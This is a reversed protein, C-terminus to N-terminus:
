NRCRTGKCQILVELEQKLPAVRDREHKLELEPNVLNNLQFPDQSINYLEYDRAAMLDQNNERRDRGLFRNKRERRKAWEFNPYREWESFLMAEGNSDIYRLANFSPVDMLYAPMLRYHLLHLDTLYGNALGPGWYEILFKDRWKKIPESVEKSGRILPLLSKGDMAEPVKKTVLDLITPALDINLVWHELVQGKKLNLNKGGSIFMPVRIGEEYPAIKQNLGHAGFNYGNDSAFIFLTDDWQNNDKLTKVIDRIMEDCAILSGMRNHWDVQHAGINRKPADKPMRAGMWQLFKGGSNFLDARKKFTKQLFLPKNELYSNLEQGELNLAINPNKAPFTRYGWQEDTAEFHRRAPPLPFHPCTPNVYAFFPRNPEKKADNIFELTKDRVVDTSYDKEEDGRWELKPASENKFNMLHYNYGRYKKLNRSALIAGDTWGVPLPPMAWEGKVKKVGHGNLYKGILATRYGQQKLLNPFAFPEDDKFQEWGGKPGGNGLVNTNHGYKGSLIAARSPCCLPTTVFANSFDTGEQRLGMTFPMVKEYYPKTTSVDLDDLLVFVINPARETAAWLSNAMLIYSLCLSAKAWFSKM